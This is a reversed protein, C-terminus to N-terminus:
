GACAPEREPRETPENETRCTWEEARAMGAAAGMMGGGNPRGGNRRDLPGSYAPLRVVRELSCSM